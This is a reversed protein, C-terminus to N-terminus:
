TRTAPHQSREYLVIERRYHKHTLQIEDRLERELDEMRARVRRLEDELRLVHAVGALNLGLETTLRQILRLREVDGESYLRTGGPTRAPRVLGRSEYMRLTQPHLGALEAAISIMYRGREPM